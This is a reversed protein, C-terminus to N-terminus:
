GDRAEERPDTLRLPESSRGRASVAFEPTYIPFVLGETIAALPEEKAIYDLLM